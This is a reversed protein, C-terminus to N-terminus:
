QPLKRSYHLGILMVCVFGGLTCATRYLVPLLVSVTTAADGQHFREYNVFLAISLLIFMGIFLNDFTDRRLSMKSAAGM